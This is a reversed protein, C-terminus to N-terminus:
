AGIVPKSIQCRYRSGLSEVTAEATSQSSYLGYLAAGSGSLSAYVAGQDYLESKVSSLQPYHRFVLDEFDNYFESRFDKLDLNQFGFGRFKYDENKRTLTLNLNKYAWKTSINIEPLVLVIHYDFTMKISKLIEGKGSGYATSGMLFFPVDAGINEAMNLLIDKSYEIGYLELGGRLVAAADSSGGGLGAGIPLKKELRIDLGPINFEHALLKAAIICLNSSEKQLVPSDTSFKIKDNKLIYLTDHYDIEQYILEIEHYGDDRKHKVALALNIKANAKIELSEMHIAMLHFDKKVV